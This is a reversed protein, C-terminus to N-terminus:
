EHCDAPCAGACVLCGLDLTENDSDPLKAPFWTPFRVEIISVRNPPLSQRQDPGPPKEGTRTLAKGRQISVEGSHM